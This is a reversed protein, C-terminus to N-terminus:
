DGVRGENRKEMYARNFPDQAHLVRFEKDYVTLLVGRARTFFMAHDYRKYSEDWMVKRIGATRAVYFQAVKEFVPLSAVESGPPLVPRAATPYLAAERYDPVRYFPLDVRAGGLIDIRPESELVALARELQTHRCFVYDDDLLLLYPTRVREVGANRGASLGSDYPLTVYDVGPLPVPQRSDDVVIVPLRPYFRRISRVLRALIKPREFTKIVATLNENLFAVDQGASGLLADTMGHFALEAHVAAGYMPRGIWRGGGELFLRKLLQKSRPRYILDAIRM